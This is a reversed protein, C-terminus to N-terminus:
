LVLYCFDWFLFGDKSDDALVREAVVGLVGKRKLWM